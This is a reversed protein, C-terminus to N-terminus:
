LVMKSSTGDTTLIGIQHDWTIIHDIRPWIFIVQDVLIVRLQLLNWAFVEISTIPLAGEQITTLVLVPELVAREILVWPLIIDHIRIANPSM